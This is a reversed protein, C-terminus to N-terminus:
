DQCLRSGPLSIIVQVHSLEEGVAKIESCRVNAL